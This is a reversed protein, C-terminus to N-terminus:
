KKKKKKKSFSLPESSWVPRSFRSAPCAPSPSGDLRVLRWSSLSWVYFVFVFCVFFLFSCFFLFGSFVIMSFSALMGFCSFWCPLCRRKVSCWVRVVEQCCCELVGQPEFSGFIQVRVVIWGAEGPWLWRVSACWLDLLDGLLLWVLFVVVVWLCILGM